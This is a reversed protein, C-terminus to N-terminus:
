IDLEKITKGTKEGMISAFIHRHCFDGSKEYCLLVLDRKDNIESIRELGELVLNFDYRNTMEERYMREYEVEDIEGRKIKGLIEKSPAFIKLECIEINKPTYRAISIPFYGADKIKNLKAFYSTYIEM